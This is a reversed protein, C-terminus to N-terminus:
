WHACSAAGRCTPRSVLWALPTAIACSLAGVGLAMGIALLFPRRLTADNALAAFNALSPGTRDILSYYLLWSLPLVVLVALVLVLLIFAPRFLDIRLRPRSLAAPIAVTM